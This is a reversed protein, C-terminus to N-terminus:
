NTCKVEHPPRLIGCCIGGFGAVYLPTAHRGGIEGLAAEAAAAEATEAEAAAAMVSDGSAIKGPLPATEAAEKKRSRAINCNIRGHRETTRKDATKKCFIEPLLDSM